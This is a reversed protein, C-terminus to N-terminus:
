FIRHILISINMLYICGIVNKGENNIFTAGFHWKEKLKCIFFKSKSHRHGENKIKEIQFPM